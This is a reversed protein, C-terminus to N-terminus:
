KVDWKWGTSDAIEEDNLPFTAALKLLINHSLVSELFRWDWGGNQAVMSAVLTLLVSVYDVQIIKKMEKCIGKSILTSYM